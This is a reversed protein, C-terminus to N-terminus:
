ILYDVGAPEFHSFYFEVAALLKRVLPWDILNGRVTSLVESVACFDFKSFTVITLIYHIPTSIWTNKLGETYRREM